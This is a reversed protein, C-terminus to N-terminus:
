PFDVPFAAARLASRTSKSRWSKSLDTGTTELVLQFVLPLPRYSRDDRGARADAKMAEHVKGVLRELWRMRHKNPIRRAGVVKKKKDLIAVPRDFRMAPCTIQVAVALAVPALASAPCKSGGARTITRQIVGVIKLLLRAEAIAFGVEADNKPRGRPRKPPKPMARALVAGLSRLRAEQSGKGKRGLSRWEAAALGIGFEPSSPDPHGWCAVAVAEHALFMPSAFPDVPEAKGHAKAEEVFAAVTAVTAVDRAQPDDFPDNPTSPPRPFRSAYRVGGAVRPKTATRRPHRTTKKASM